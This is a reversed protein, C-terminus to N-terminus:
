SERGSESIRWGDSLQVARKRKRWRRSARSLTAVMRTVTMTTQIMKARRSAITRRADGPRGRERGAIMKARARRRRMARVKATTMAGVDASVTRPGSATVTATAIETETETETETATATAVATTMDTVHAPCVREATRNRATAARLTVAWVRRVRRSLQPNPLTTSRVSVSSFRERGRRAPRLRARTKHPSRKAAAEKARAKDAPTLPASHRPPREATHFASVPEDVAVWESAQVKDRIRKLKERGKRKDLEGAKRM